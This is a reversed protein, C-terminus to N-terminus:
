QVTFSFLRGTESVTFRLRVVRGMAVEGLSEGDFRIRHRLSDGTVCAEAPPEASGTLIEVTVPGIGNVWLERGDLDLPRTTLRGGAVSVFGDVRLRARFVGGGTIRTGRAQNKGHSSASYYYILEDGIRM